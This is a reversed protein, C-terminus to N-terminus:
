LNFNNDLSVYLDPTSIVELSGQHLEAFRKSLALGIGSGDKKLSMNSQYYWEFIQEIDKQDIGAGSDKVRIQLYNDM